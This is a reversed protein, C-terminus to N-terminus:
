RLLTPMHANVDCIGAARDAHNIRRVAQNRAGIHAAPQAPQNLVRMQVRAQEREGLQVRQDIRRVRRGVIPLRHRVVQARVAIVGVCKHHQVAGIRHAIRAGRQRVRQGTEALRHNERPRLMREAFDFRVGGRVDRTRQVGRHASTKMADAQEEAMM